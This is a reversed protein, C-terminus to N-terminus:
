EGGIREEAIKIKKKVFNLEDEKSYILGMVKAELTDDLLEKFIPGPKLGLSMLDKGTMELEIDRLKLLYFMLYHRIYPDDCDNYYFIIEEQKLPKLWQYLTFKDLDEEQLQQYLKDKNRLTEEVKKALTQNALKFLVTELHDTSFNSFLQMIIIQLKNIGKDEGYFEKFKEISADIYNVKKLLDENLNLQPHLIEIIRFKKLLQLSDGMSREKLIQVLEERIREDSLKEVMHDKIAMEMFGSTEEEIEFKFRSAFRIARFIRTPDEIFSLNYLVRIKKNEIDRLGGFYDILKGEHAKNLQIAMCNITFDRRFLDSWISSQEVKPLAAPYEYYERRATVIDITQGNDLTIMATGFQKYLTTQGNLKLNLAEAFAIGDGEVVIDIDWNTAHLFLDRVFGGVVYANKNLEDAVTGAFDLLHYIDKPLKKLLHYCNIDELEEEHFVKKYWNPHNNGYLVKLLDTRTVIGIIKGEEIVPLRGINHKLMLNNIDTISTNSTISLINRTMFGKVPAHSLGHLIAKDIDTRSIIGILQDEKVVPMGTHGYRLMIKNVEDVSMDEFVTKVPHSMIEKATIKPKTNIQLAKLLLSKVEETEGKKISASAAKRHGGGGFDKLILPLNMEDVITRAVIYCREEMKVVLFIGDCKKIDIIKEAMTGLEGIFDELVLTAMLIEYGNINITELNNIITSFLQDQEPALTGRMVQNVIALNAGQKLLYAVVEADHYTTHSFTLCNTDTYIGLAFLTAEFPSIPIEKEIIEELLITTCAGYAKIIQNGKKISHEGVMHHDIITIPLEKDLLQSFKGIRKPSNVDVIFLEEVEELNLKGAQDIPLVNKYLVIFEKVEEKLKGTFFMTADPHIKSCAVMSALADFDTNQHSIIAKM